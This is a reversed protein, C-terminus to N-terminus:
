CPVGVPAAHEVVPVVLSYGFDDEVFTPVQMARGIATVRHVGPGSVEAALEVLAEPWVRFTDDTVKSGFEAFCDDCREIETGYKDSEFVAWGPCGDSCQLWTFDCRNCHLCGEDGSVCQHVHSRCKPCRIPRNKYDRAM